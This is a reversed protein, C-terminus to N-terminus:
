KTAATADVHVIVSESSVSVPLGPLFGSVLTRTTESVNLTTDIIEGNQQLHFTPSVSKCKLPHETYMGHVLVNAPCTQTDVMQEIVSTVVGGVINGAFTPMITGHVAFYILYSNCQFVHEPSQELYTPWETGYEGNPFGQLTSRRNQIADYCIPPLHISIQQKDGGGLVYKERSVENCIKDRTVFKAKASLFKKNPNVLIDAALKVEGPFTSGSNGSNNELLYAAMLQQVYVDGMSSGGCTAMFTSKSKRLQLVVVEVVAPTNFKNLVHLDVKGPGLNPLFNEYKKLFAATPGVETSSALFPSFKARIGAARAVDKFVEVPTTNQGSALVAATSNPTNEGHWNVYKFPNANWSITELDYLGLPPYYTDTGLAATGGSLGSRVATNVNVVGILRPLLNPGLVNNPPLPLELATNMTGSNYSRFGMRIYNRSNITSAVEFAFEVKVVEKNPTFIPGPKTYGVGRQHPLLIRSRKHVQDSGKVVSGTFRTHKGTSPVNVPPEKVPLRRRPPNAGHPFLPAFPNSIPHFPNYKNISGFSGGIGKFSGLMSGQKRLFNESSTVGHVIPTIIKRVGKRIGLGKRKGM